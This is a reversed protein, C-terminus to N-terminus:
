GQLKLRGVTWFFELIDRLGLKSKGHRRDYFIIPIESVRLGAREVYYLLEEQFAYGTSALKDLEVTELIKRRYARFGSTVDRTKIKLMRRAFEMAGRSMALRLWGWGYIASGPIRRSGVVLDAGAAIKKLLEPIRAPDHSLDGDLTVVVEAGRGRALALGDKLASGLGLKQSRLILTVPYRKRLARAVTITGDHSSDDVVIVELGSIGLAFIRQMLIKITGQENYTPIIVSIRM